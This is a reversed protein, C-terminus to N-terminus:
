PYGGEDVRFKFVENQEYQKDDIFFKFKIGYSYGTEFLSTDIDFYNGEEDYSLQTHSVSGTGYPIVDYNDAVRFIKYYAKEITESEIDTVSTVYVTPCWDKRRVYLRFRATESNSYVDKMNTINSVYQPIEYSSQGTYDFIYVRSGTVFQTGANDHWVDYVFSSTTYLAVEAKYVGTSVWSGTVTDVGTHLTLASGSPGSSGSYLSLYIPGTGVAPIDVKTPGIRNYIYLSNLNNAAPLLSSSVTFNNRDDKVTSDWRAEIWPRKYFYQSGRAFFKKTYYSRTASELTGSLKVMVGNNDVTESIWNEVLGTIDVDIDETGKAMYQSYNFDTREDGGETTWLTNESSSIWCVEGVDKYTEMDVGHGEEWSSSVPSINMYYKKPTTQGHPANSLKMYFSVSGSAPLDGAARDTIIETVPFQIIARSAELSASSQQAYLHFVEMIDSEGMNSATARSTLNHKYANTITSDQEALYRKIAM